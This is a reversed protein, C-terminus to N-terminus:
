SPEVREQLRKVARRISMKTADQSKGVIKAISGVDHDDIYRWKILKVDMPYKDGLDLLAPGLKRVIDMRSAVDSALSPQPNLDQMLRELGVADPGHFDAADAPRAKRQRDFDIGTTRVVDKLWAGPVIPDGDDNDPIGDRGFKAFFKVMVLQELDERDAAPWGGWQRRVIRGVADQVARYAPVNTGHRGVRRAGEYKDMARM